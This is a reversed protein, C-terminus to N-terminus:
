PRGRWVAEARGIMEAIFPGKADAYANMDPWDQTALRHKLDAYRARDEPHERLWDRFLLHRREWDSGATCIHLHVNRAPTRLMRHGPERVRLQYGAALLEPLYDPEDDVDAVSLDVDIIPKAPLGPVATSGVHEVRLARGGLATIIVARQQAFADPWVSDYEVITIARKEIGGFLERGTAPGARPHDGAQIATSFPFTAARRWRGDPQEAMLTVAHATASIPLETRLAESAARMDEVPARDGVTLHPVADDFLGGYPPYEPYEREVLATLRRFEADADPALWVVTDDFWLVDVLQFDFSEVEAFLARLHHETSSDIKSIPIFPFLVTVHAPVGRGALGDLAARWPGVAIEAEPVEVILGSRLM